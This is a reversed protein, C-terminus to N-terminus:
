KLNGFILISSYTYVFIYVYTSIYAGVLLKGEKHCTQNLEQVAVWVVQAHHWHYSTQNSPSLTRKRTGYHSVGIGWLLRPGLKQPTHAGLLAKRSEPLSEHPNIPARHYVEIPNIPRKELTSRRKADAWPNPIFGYGLPGLLASISELLGKSGLLGKQAKNPLREGRDVPPGLIFGLMRHDRKFPNM